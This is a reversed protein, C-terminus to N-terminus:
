GEPNCSNLVSKLPNTNSLKLNKTRKVLSSRPITYIGAKSTTGSKDIWPYLITVM